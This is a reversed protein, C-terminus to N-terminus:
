GYMPFEKRTSPQQETSKVDEALRQMEIEIKEAQQILSETNVDLEYISNLVDIVVAAAMPDPNQSQTAGLLSIAPIERVLCESMISGSIGSITGMQFVEVKDKIRELMAPTTAAGFIKLDESMTAIGAISVVEKVNINEAWDLLARSIDYSVTPNIPIDSVVIVINHELSEYIRVPMNILGEYLVAIPPFHKSDISGIYNMKLEDIIQQSTINGILGIGPFGEILIPNKNELTKTVIKVNKDDFDTDAM